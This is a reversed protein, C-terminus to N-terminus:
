PRAVAATDTQQLNANTDGRALHLSPLPVIFTADERKTFSDIFHWPLCFLYDPKRQRMEEESIIPIHTGVTLRGWKDPNRDAIAPLLEPGIGYYQLLTNGKTSAGYGYVTKGQAKWETLMLLTTEKLREVERSFRHLQYRFQTAHKPEPKPPNWNGHKVIYRVSGGNTKNHSVGVVQLGHRAVLDYFAYRGWYTLHEHCINDFGNCALMAHLDQFQCVWVGDPHLWNKIAEVFGNVDDVDYFMAISTIINYGDREFPPHDPPFYGHAVMAGDKRADYVLDSPEFGHRQWHGPFMRLLTGDNAGIDLVATDNTAPFPLRAVADEAVDRLAAVMSENTGSHYWYDRYLRDRDVTHRLQVLSCDDCVMLELPARDEDDVQCPGVFDSVCLNGLDLVTELRTSGCARCMAIEKVDM